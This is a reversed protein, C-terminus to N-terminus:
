TDFDQNFPDDNKQFEYTKKFDKNFPIVRIDLDSGEAIMVLAEQQERMDFIVNMSDMKSTFIHNLEKEYVGIDEALLRYYKIQSEKQIKHSTM